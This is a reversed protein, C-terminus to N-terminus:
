DDYNSEWMNVVSRFGRSLISWDNDEVFAEIEGIQDPTLKDWTTEYHEEIFDIASQEIERDFYEDVKNM